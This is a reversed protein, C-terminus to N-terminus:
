QQPPPLAAMGRQADAHDPKVTLCKTWAVRAKEFQQVSFYAGGLNYWVEPNDAGPNKEEIRAASELEMLAEPVKNQRGLLMAQNMYVNSLLTYYKKLYPNSPFYVLATDWYAEARDFEYLRYSGLGLNLYGTVYEANVESKPANRLRVPPKHISVARKLYEQGQRILKEQTPTPHGPEVGATDLKNEPWDASNIYQAGANGNALVSNPVTNVDTTFLTFDNKWAPNRQIVKYSCLALGAVTLVGILIRRASFAAIFREGGRVAVWAIIMAFGFSSHYILREGMTAGIDMLWNAVLLFNLLYFSFAFGLIHRKLTLRVAGIIIGIHALLSVWVLPHGFGVYPYHAFSYDSSLPHPFFLLRIYNWPMYIKSALREGPSAYLYPNNLVEPNQKRTAAVDPIIADRILLYLLGIALFPLMSIIAQRVTYKRTIYFLIPILAILTIAYEKSLLALMFLGLSALLHKAKKSEQYTAAAILTLTIFMFSMIEDRSKVNAVVETHLPHVLFILTTLFAIDPDNRFVFRQLFFLLVVASLAYLIINGIHRISALSKESEKKEEEAAKKQEETTLQKLKSEQKEQTIGFMQQEIAFTVISLPRYRGGELEQTGGMQEYYSFYADKSMIDRIGKTGQQVFENQEIVIGDDLAYENDYSNAYIFIGIVFIILAQMLFGPLPFLMAKKELPLQVAEPTRAASPVPRHSQKPKAKSM